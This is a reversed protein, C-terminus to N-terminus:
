RTRRRREGRMLPALDSWGYADLVALNLDSHLQRLVSVLGEEGVLPVFQPADGKLSELLEVFARKPLLGVDELVFAGHRYCDLYGHSTTGDGHQFTVRREGRRAPAPRHRMQKLV